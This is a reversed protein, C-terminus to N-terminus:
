KKEGAPPLICCRVVTGNMERKQLCTLHTCRSNNELGLDARISGKDRADHAIGISRSSLRGCRRGEKVDLEWVAVAGEPEEELVALTSWACRWPLGRIPDSGGCRASLSGETGGGRWWGGDQLLVEALSSATAVGMTALVVVHHIGHRGAAM